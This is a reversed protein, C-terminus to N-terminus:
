EERLQKLFTESVKRGNCELEPDAGHELLLRGIAINNKWAAFHLPTCDYAARANVDAGNDILLRALDVYGGSAANHLATAEDIGKRNIHAGRELFLRVIDIHGAKAASNLASDHSGFPEIKAGNELLIRVIQEDGNATACFLPTYWAEGKENVDAGQEILYEVMDAHRHRAAIILPTDITGFPFNATGWAELSNIDAGLSLAQKAADIDGKRAADHLCGGLASAFLLVGGALVVRLVRSNM